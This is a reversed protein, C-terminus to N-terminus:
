KVRTFEFMQDWYGNEIYMDWVKMGYSEYSYVGVLFDTPTYERVIVTLIDENLYLFVNAEKYETSSGSFLYNVKSFKVKTADVEPSKNVYYWSYKIPTFDSLECEVFYKKLDGTLTPVLINADGETKFELIDAATNHSPLDEKTDGVEGMMMELMFLDADENFIPYNSYAWKGELDSFSLAKGFTVTISENIGSAAFRDKYEAPIKSDDIKVIVTPAEAPIETLKSKLTIKASKTGKAFVFETAGDKIEYDSANATGEITFPLHFEGGAVFDTGTKAGALRLVIDTETSLTAVEDRFGYLINEKAEISILTNANGGVTYASTGKITLNIALGESRNDKPSITVSASSAGSEFRFSEASLTYDSDKSASGSIAFEVATEAGFPRSSVATVTITEDAGMVYTTKEFEVSPLNKTEDTCSCMLAGLCLATFIIKKM